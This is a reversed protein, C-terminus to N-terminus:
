KSGPQYGKIPKLGPVRLLGEYTMPVNGRIPKPAPAKPKGYMAESAWVGARVRGLAQPQAASAERRALNPYMAAAAKSAM